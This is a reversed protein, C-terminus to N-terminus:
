DLWIWGVKKSIRNNYCFDFSIEQFFGKKNEKNSAM